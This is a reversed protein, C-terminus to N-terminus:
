TPVVCECTCLNERARNNIVDFVSINSFLTFNEISNELMVIRIPDHYAMKCRRTTDLTGDPHKCKQGHEYRHTDKYLYAVSSFSLKANNPVHAVQMNRKNSLMHECDVKTNAVGRQECSMKPCVCYRNHEAEQQM